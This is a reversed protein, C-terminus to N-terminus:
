EHQRLLSFGYALRRGFNGTTIDVLDATERTEGRGRTDPRLKAGCVCYDLGSDDGRGCKRCVRTKDYKAQIDDEKDLRFRPRTRM